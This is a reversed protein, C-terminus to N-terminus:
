PRHIQLKMTDTRRTFVKFGARKAAILAHSRVRKMEAGTDCEVEMYGGECLVAVADTLESRLIGNARPVAGNREGKTAIRM